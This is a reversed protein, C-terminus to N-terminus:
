FGDRLELIFDTILLFLEQDNSWITLNLLDSNQGLDLLLPVLDLNRIDLLREEVVVIKRLYENRAEELDVTGKQQILKKILFDFGHNIRRKCLYMLCYLSTSSEARPIPVLKRSDMEKEYKTLLDIHIVPNLEKRENMSEYKM